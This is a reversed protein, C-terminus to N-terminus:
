LYVDGISTQSWNAVQPGSAMFAGVPDPNGSIM